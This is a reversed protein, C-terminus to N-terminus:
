KIVKLGNEWRRQELTRVELGFRDMKDGKAEITWKRTVKEVDDFIKIRVKLWFIEIEDGKTWKRTEKTRFNEGRTM